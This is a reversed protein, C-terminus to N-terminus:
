KTEPKLIIRFRKLIEMADREEEDGRKKLGKITGEVASDILESYNHLKISLDTSILSLLHSLAALEVLGDIGGLTYTLNGKEKEIVLIKKKTM